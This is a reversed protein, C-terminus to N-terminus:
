ELELITLQVTAGSARGYWAGQYSEDIFVSGSTLMPIGKSSTVTDDPAVAAVAVGGPARTIFLAKRAANTAALMASGGTPVTFLTFLGVGTARDKPVYATVTSGPTGDDGVLVVGLANSNELSHTQAIVVEGGPEIGVIGVRKASHAGYLHEYYDIPDHTRSTPADSM